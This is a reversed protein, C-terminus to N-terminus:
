TIDIIRSLDEQTRAGNKHCILTTTAYVNCALGNIHHAPLIPFQVSSPEPEVLPIMKASEPALALNVLMSKMLPLLSFLKPTLGELLM